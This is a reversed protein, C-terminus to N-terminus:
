PGGGVTHRHNKEVKLEVLRMRAMLDGLLVDKIEGVDSELHTLRDNVNTVWAAAAGVGGVVVVLIAWLVKVITSLKHVAAVFDDHTVRVLEVTPAAPV